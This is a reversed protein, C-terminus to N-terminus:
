GTWAASRVGDYGQGLEPGISSFPAADLTPPIEGVFSAFEWSKSIGEGKSVCPLHHWSRSAHVRIKAHTAAADGLDLFAWSKAEMGCRGTEFWSARLM